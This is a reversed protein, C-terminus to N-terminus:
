RTTQRIASAPLVRTPSEVLEPRELRRAISQLTASAALRSCGEAAPPTHCRGDRTARGLLVGIRRSKRETSTRIRSLQTESQESRASELRVAGGEGQLGRSPIRSLRYGQLRTASQVVRPVGSLSRKNFLALSSPPDVHIRLANYMAGVRSHSARIQIM